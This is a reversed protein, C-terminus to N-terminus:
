EWLCLPVGLCSPYGPFGLLRILPVLRLGLSIDTEPVQLVEEEEDKEKEEESRPTGM